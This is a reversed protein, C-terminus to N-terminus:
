VSSTSARDMPSKAAPAIMATSRHSSQHVEDEYSRVKSHRTGNILVEPADIDGSQVAYTMVSRGLGDLEDRTATEIAELSDSAEVRARVSACLKRLTAVMQDEDLKTTSTM